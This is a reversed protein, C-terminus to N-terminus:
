AKIKLTACIISPPNINLQHKFVTPANKADKILSDHTKTIALPLGRRYLRWLHWLVSFTHIENNQAPYFLNVRAKLLLKNKLSIPAIKPSEQLMCTMKGDNCDCNLAHFLFDFILDDVHTALESM